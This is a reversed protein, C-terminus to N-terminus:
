VETGKWMVPKWEKIKWKDGFALEWEDELKKMLAIPIGSLRVIMDEKLVAGIHCVAVKVGKVMWDQMMWWDVEKNSELKVQVNGSALITAAVLKGIRERMMEDIWCIVLKAREM